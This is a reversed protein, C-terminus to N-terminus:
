KLFLGKLFHSTRRCCSMAWEVRRAMDVSCRQEHKLQNGMIGNM